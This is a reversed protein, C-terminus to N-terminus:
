GFMGIKILEVTNNVGLKQQINKRHTDVTLKSIDLESAIEKSTSGKVIFKLIERERNSLRQLRMEGKLRENETMLKQLAENSSLQRNMQRAAGLVDRMEDFIKKHFSLQARLSQNELRLAQVEDTLAQSNYNTNHEVM